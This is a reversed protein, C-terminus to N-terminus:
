HERIPVVYSGTCRSFGSGSGIENVWSSWPGANQWDVDPDTDCGHSGTHM